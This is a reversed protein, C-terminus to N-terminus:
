VSSTVRNLFEGLLFTSFVALVAMASSLYTANSGRELLWAFAIQSLPIVLTALADFIGRVTGLSELPIFKQMLSDFSVNLLEGGFGLIFVAPFLAIVAPVGVIPLAISQLLMGIIPPRRLGIERREAFLALLAVAALSGVTTLSQLLGYIFEGNGLERLSAFVFVRFSSVAFNFILVSAIVGLVLRKDTITRNDPKELQIGESKERRVEVNLYPLLTLAGIFLLVADLFMARIGFRYALFGALPFAVLSVGNGVTALTANLGQLESEDLTMSAVLSFGYYRHLIDLASIGSVILYFAWINSSLPVILVALLAQLILAFFALRVKKTTRDLTRGLLPPLLVWPLHTFLAFGGISLLSGTTDLLSWPLAVSEIADGVIRLSSTLVHLRYLAQKM